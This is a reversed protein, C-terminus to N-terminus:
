ALTLVAKQQFRHQWKSFQFQVSMQLMGEMKTDIQMIMRNLNLTKHYFLACTVQEKKTDIIHHTPNRNNNQHQM